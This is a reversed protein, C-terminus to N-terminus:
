IDELEGLVINFVKNVGFVDGLTVDGLTVDGLTVDGFTVDGFTVDVFFFSFIWVNPSHISFM